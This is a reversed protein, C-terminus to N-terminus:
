SRYDGNITIYGHTLDCTYATYKGDGVAVDVLIEIDTGAMKEDILSEDYKVAGGDKAVWQGCFQISLKDVNIPELCKGVAMAVRGWNADGGAIATKVLPSNAIAMAIVKASADDKAGVVDVKIFKTAGEGDKVVQLALDLMIEYLADAFATDKDTLDKNGAENTAFVLLTDSTSTDSDVTIANFTKETYESVLKQLERSAINADTFIYVLMTAMNPAIMGSGKAIGAINITKGDIEITKGAGKIFTDTTAIATAMKEWNAPELKDWVAELKSSILDKAVPVGIVGTASLFVEEKLCGAIECYKELTANNKDIGAQGTFANSNGANVVLGRAFGHKLAEACWDVDCSRTNSKTFTGAVSASSLFNVVLLDDRPKGYMGLSYTAAYVGKVEPLSPFKQPALPSVPLDKM